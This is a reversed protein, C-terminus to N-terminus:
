ASGQKFAGPYEAGLLDDYVSLTREVVKEIPFETVAIERSKVGMRAREKPNEILLKIAEALHVHDRPPVLYGNEGERVVERCGPVDTTVIPRGVSAAELLIKPLGERYSPLSVIAALPLVQEMDTRQGWWEVIGEQVWSQLEEITVTAPNGPDTEGVLVLRCNVKWERLLRAADVFEEVGKDRLMRSALMVVPVDQPEPIHRYMEVDVGSGRILVARHKEVLGRGVFAEIDDPNQFIVRVRDGSLAVKYALRAAWRLLWAKLGPSIFVYGLGSIANVVAPNGFFRAALSTYLVPKITVNHVLDPKIDRLLKSTARL